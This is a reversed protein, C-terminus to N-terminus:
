KSMHSGWGCWSPCKGYNYNQRYKTSKCWLILNYREGSTIDDAGHRHQGRNLMARGVKHDVEFTEGPLTPTQQCSQCRLGKYYLTGGTFKRGLCVNLTVESDDTHFGLSTDKDMGYEVVFGHHHDLSDGGADAFLLTSLPTIYEALLQSLFPTFGIDDLIVGYNNMSNPPQIKIQKKKCWSKFWLIEEILQNCFEPKLLDFSYIGSHEKVLIQELAQSTKAHIAKSFSEVFIDDKLKYLQNHLPYYNDQIYKRNYQCTKCHNNCEENM